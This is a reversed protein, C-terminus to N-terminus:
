PSNNGPLVMNLPKDSLFSQQFPINGYTSLKRNKSVAYNAEQGGRRKLASPLTSLYGRVNYNFQVYM